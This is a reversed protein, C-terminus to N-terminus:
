RGAPATAVELRLANYNDRGIRLLRVTLAVLEPDTIEVPVGHDACEKDIVGAAYTMAEEWTVGDKCGPGREFVPVVRDPSV